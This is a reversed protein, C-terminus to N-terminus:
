IVEKPLNMVNHRPVDPKYIVTTYILKQSVPTKVTDWLQPGGTCARAIAGQVDHIDTQATVTDDLVLLATQNQSHKHLHYDSAPSAFNM